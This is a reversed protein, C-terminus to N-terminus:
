DSSRISNQSSVGPLMWVQHVSNWVIEMNDVKGAWQGKGGYVPMCLSKIDLFHATTPTDNPPDTKQSSPGEVWTWGQQEPDYVARIKGLDCWFRGKRFFVFVEGRPRFPPIKFKQQGQHRKPPRFFDPDQLQGTSDEGEPTRSRKKGGKSGGEAPIETDDGSLDPDETADGNESPNLSVRGSTGGPAIPSTQSTCSAPLTAPRMGNPGTTGGLPCHAHRLLSLTDRVKARSTWRITVQRVILMVCFPFRPEFRREREISGFVDHSNCHVDDATPYLAGGDRRQAAEAEAEPEPEPEAARKGWGGRHLGV